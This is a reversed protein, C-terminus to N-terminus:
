RWSSSGSGRGAFSVAIRQGRSSLSNSGIALGGFSYLVIHGDAGFFRGMIVHGLEHILISVFVCAVWIILYEFGDQITSYGLIVSMLWFMPHVRIPIGFM